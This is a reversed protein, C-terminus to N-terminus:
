THAEGGLAAYTLARNDTGAVTYTPMLTGNTNGVFQFHNFLSMNFKAYDQLMYKYAATYQSSQWWAQQATVVDANTTVGTYGTGGEYIVLSMHDVLNNQHQSFISAM